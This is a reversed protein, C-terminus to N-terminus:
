RLDHPVKEKIKRLVTRDWAKDFEFANLIHGIEHLHQKKKQKVVVNDDPSTLLIVDKNFTLHYQTRPRYFCVCNLLFCVKVVNLNSSM